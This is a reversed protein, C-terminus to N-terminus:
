TLVMNELKIIDNVVALLNNLLLFGVVPFITIILTNKREVPKRDGWFLLVTWGFMLATALGLAYRSEMSNNIYSLNFLDLPLNLGFFSITFLNIGYLGDLVIGVWYAIRLMLIRNKIDM